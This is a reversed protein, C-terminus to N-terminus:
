PRLVVVFLIGLGATGAALWAVYDCVQGSHLRELWSLPSELLRGATRDLAPPLRDRFLAWAAFAVAALASGFGSALGHATVHAAPESPATTSAPGTPCADLVVAAYARADDFRAAAAQAWRSSPGPWWGPILSLVLLAGATARMSLPTRQSGAQTEPREQDTPADEEECSQPGWGAFVWGAARLVAGGTLAAALTFVWSAWGQDLGRTGEEMLGKGVTTGFPPLGALALGGLVFMTGTWPMIRGRGRLAFQDVSELRHLLIGTCLFLTGKVMGHSFVYLTVGALEGADPTVIGGLMMGAHSITSFALLRKLHRQRFCMVAGLLATVVGLWLLTLRLGTLHAGVAGAFVTWYVRAVGYLGLEVMIGSFLLCAPTPAIAHADALWFHFPVAAAKVLFGGAILAFAITVLGDSAGAAGLARGLQALNLAGTRGYLLIIGWLALFAGLSNVIAFNLAGELSEAEIKYGTLAFAATGMLEFFVFMTFLDGSLCFGAMAALFVLMLAHFLAGVSEFYRWSFVLAATGLLGVFAALAAGLPDAVFAIGVAIGGPRPRWHGFWYVLTGSTSAHWALTGALVALTAATAIGLVDAVSRPILKSGAALLAATLLPLAVTLPVLLAAM